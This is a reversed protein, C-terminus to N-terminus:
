AESKGDPPCTTTVSYDPKGQRVWVTAVGNKTTPDNNLLYLLSATLHDRQNEDLCVQDLNIDLAVNTEAALAIQLTVLGRLTEPLSLTNKLFEEIQLRINDFPNEKPPEKEGSAYKSKEARPSIALSVQPTGIQELPIQMNVKEPRPTSEQGEERMAFASNAWTTITVPRKLTNAITQATTDIQEKSPDFIGNKPGYELGKVTLDIKLNRNQGEIIRFERDRPNLKDIGLGSLNLDLAKNCTVISAQIEDPQCELKCIPM